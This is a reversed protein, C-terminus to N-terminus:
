VSAGRTLQRCVSPPASGGAGPVVPRSRALAPPTKLSSSARGQRGQLSGAVAKYGRTLCAKLPSWRSTVLTHLLAQHPSCGGMWEDVWGSMWEDVWVCCCCCCCSQVRCWSPFPNRRVNSSRGIVLMGLSTQFLNYELEQAGSSM